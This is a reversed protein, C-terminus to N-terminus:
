LTQLRRLRMRLRHLPFRRRLFNPAARARRRPLLLPPPRRSRRCNSVAGARSWPLRRPPLRPGRRGPVAGGQTQSCPRSPSLSPRSLEPGVGERRQMCLRPPPCHPRSAHARQLRQECRAFPPPSVVRPPLIPSCTWWSQEPRRERQSRLRLPCRLLRCHVSGNGHHRPGARLPPVAGGDASAAIVADAPGLSYRTSIGCHPCRTTIIGHSGAASATM